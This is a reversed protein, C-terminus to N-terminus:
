RGCDCPKKLGGGLRGRARGFRPAPKKSGGGAAVAVISGIAALGGLVAAIKGANSSKPQQDM